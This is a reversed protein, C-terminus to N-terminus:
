CKDDDSDLCIISGCDSGVEWHGDPKVLLGPGSAIKAMSPDEKARAEKTDNRKHSQKRKRNKDNARSKPLSQQSMFENTLCSAPVDTKVGIIANEVNVKGELTCNSTEDKQGATPVTGTVNDYSTLSSDPCVHNEHKFMEPTASELYNKCLGCQVLIARDQGHDTQFHELMQHYDCTISCCIFVSPSKKENGMAPQVIPKVDHVSIGPIRETVSLKNFFGHKNGLHYVLATRLSTSFNCNTDVGCQYHPMFRSGDPSLHLAEVGPLNKAVHELFYHLLAFAHLTFKSEGRNCIGCEVYSTDKTKLEFQKLVDKEIDRLLLRGKPLPLGLKHQAFYLIRKLSNEEDRKTVNSMGDVRARNQRLETLRRDIRLVFEHHTKALHFFLYRSQSFQKQCNQYPCFWTDLWPVDAYQTEVFHSLAHTLFVRCNFQRGGPLPRFVIVKDCFECAYRNCSEDTRGSKASCSQDTKLQCKRRMKELPSNAETHLTCSSENGSTQQKRYTTSVNDSDLLPNLYIKAPTNSESHSISPLNPHTNTSPSHIPPVSHMSVKLDKCSFSDISLSRCLQNLLEPMADSSSGEVMCQGHYFLHVLLKVEKTCFDPLVITIQHARICGDRCRIELDALDTLSPHSLAAISEVLSCETQWGRQILQRPAM